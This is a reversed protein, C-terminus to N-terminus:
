KCFAKRQIVLFTIATSPLIKNKIERKEMTKRKLKMLLLVLQDIVNDVVVRLMLHEFLMMSKRDKLLDIQDFRNFIKDSRCM